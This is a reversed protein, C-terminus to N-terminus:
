GQRTAAKTHDRARSLLDKFKRKKFKERCTRVQEYWASEWQYYKKFQEFIRGGDEKSVDKWNKWPHSRM